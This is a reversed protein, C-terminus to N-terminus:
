VRTSRGQELHNICRELEYRLYRAFLRSLRIEREGGHPRIVVHDLACDTDWVAPQASEMYDVLDQEPDSLPRPDSM